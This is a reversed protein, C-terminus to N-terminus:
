VQQPVVLFQPLYRVLRIYSRNTIRRLCFRHIHVDEPAEPFLGWMVEQKMSNNIDIYGLSCTMIFM